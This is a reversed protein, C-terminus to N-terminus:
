PERLRRLVRRAGTRGRKAMAGLSIGAVADAMRLPARVGKRRDGIGDGREGMSTSASFQRALAWRRSISSANRTRTTIDETRRVVRDSGLFRNFPVWVPLMVDLVILHTRFSSTAAGLLVVKTKM